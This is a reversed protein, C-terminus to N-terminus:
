DSEEEYSSVERPSYIQLPKYGRELNVANFFRIKDLHVIHKFNWSVLVDVESVTALAIHRMDDLFKPPLIRKENYADALDLAEKNVEIVEPSLSLLEGYQEQVMSPADEIEAAVIDSLVVKYKGKRFDNMIDLSWKAFEIDFCGGIVSTDVYIRLVKM